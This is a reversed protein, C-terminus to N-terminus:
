LSGLDLGAALIGLEAVAVGIYLINASGAVPAEAVATGARAVVVVEFQVSFRAFMKESQQKTRDKM